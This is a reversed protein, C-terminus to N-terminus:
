HVYKKPSKMINIADVLSIKDWLCLESSWYFHCFYTTQGKPSVPGVLWSLDALTGSPAWVNYNHLQWMCPPMSDLLLNSPTHCSTCDVATCGVEQCKLWAVLAATTSRRRQGIWHPMLSLRKWALFATLALHTGQTRLHGSVSVSPDSESDSEAM